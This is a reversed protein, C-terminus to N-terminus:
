FRLNELGKWRPDIESVTCNCEVLNQNGGCVACL